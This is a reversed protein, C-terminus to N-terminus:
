DVINVQIQIVKQSIMKTKRELDTVLELLRERKVLNAKFEAFGKEGLSHRALLDKAMDTMGDVGKVTYKIVPDLLVSM